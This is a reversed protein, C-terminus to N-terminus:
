IKNHYRYYTVHKLKEREGEREGGSRHPRQYYSDHSFCEWSGLMQELTPFLSFLHTFWHHAGFSDERVCWGFSITLNKFLTSMISCLSNDNNRNQIVEIIKEGQCCLHHSLLCIGSNSNICM